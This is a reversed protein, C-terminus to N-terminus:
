SISRAQAAQAAYTKEQDAIRVDSTLYGHLSSQM